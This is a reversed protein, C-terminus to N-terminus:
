ESETTDTDQESSDETQEHVSEAEDNSEDEFVESEDTKIPQVNDHQEENLDMETQYDGSTMPREDVVEGNLYYKIMQENTVVVETVECTIKKKGRKIDFLLEDIASEKANITEKHKKLEEKLGNIKLQIENSEGKLVAAESGREIMEKETLPLLIERQTKKGEPDLMEQQTEEM